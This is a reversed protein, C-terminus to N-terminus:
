LAVLRQGAREEVARLAALVEPILDSDQHAMNCDRRRCGSGRPCYKDTQGTMFGKLAVVQKAWVRRRNSCVCVVM